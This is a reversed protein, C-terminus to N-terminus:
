AAREMRDAAFLNEVVAYRCMDFVNKETGRYRARPGQRSCVHALSHEVAVRERLNKRGGPTRKVARLQVMLEEQPHISISRGRGPGARTCKKRLSCSACDKASFRAATKRVTASNGAPCTVVGATLDIGFDEKTFLGRNRSLWPRCRVERDTDHLTRAWESALFGRDIHLEVVEGHTTVQERIDDTAEHEPRNAPQVTVGLILGHDLERAVFRKYGKIIQSRSKRGHRMDPDTISIQRDKATGRRIRSGGRDPDPELDQEVLKELQEVAEKLPTETVRSSLHEQLWTELLRVEDLLRQLARHQEQPDDWDIDLSAKLSSQGLLKLGAQKQVDGPTMEAVAAACTVVVELAHGILNFTDEVRGAGWLPASDLAVRLQKYGFGGTSKALEVSKEVFRHHLGHALVRSRFDVLAGQSFPAKDAGDCDLVMQWRRDFTAEDVAGADSTGTVAQLITATALLAPPVPPQGLPSDAYMVTLERQFEEDFLEHRHRRLFSFLRGTRQCRRCIAAEAKSLKIPPNWRIADKDPM